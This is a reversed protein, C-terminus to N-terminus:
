AKRALEKKITWHIALAPTLLIFVLFFKIATFFSLVMAAFQVPDAHYRKVALGEWIGWGMVTAIHMLLAFIGGIIVSRLLINRLLRLSELNM